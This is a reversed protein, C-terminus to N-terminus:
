CTSNERTESFCTIWSKEVISKFKLGESTWKTSPFLTAILLALRFRISIKIKTWCLFSTLFIKLKLPKSNSFRQIVIDTLEWACISATRLPVLVSADLEGLTTFRHNECNCENSPGGLVCIPGKKCYGLGDQFKSQARHAQVTPFAM